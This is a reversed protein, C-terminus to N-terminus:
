HTQTHSCTHTHPPTHAHTHTFIHLSLACTYTHTHPLTHLHTLSLTRSHTHPLTHSHTLFLTHTRTHAHTLIHSHTPTDTHSYTPIHSPTHTHTHTYTHSRTQTHSPSIAHSLTHMHMAAPEPNPFCLNKEEPKQVPGREELCLGPLQTAGCRGSGAQRTPLFSCSCGKATNWVCQAQLEARHTRSTGCPCCCRVM